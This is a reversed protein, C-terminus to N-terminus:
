ALNEKLRRLYNEVHRLHVDTERCWILQTTTMNPEAELSDEYPIGDSVNRLDHCVKDLLEVTYLDGMIGNISMETTLQKLQHIDRYNDWSLKLLLNYFDVNCVNLYMPVDSSRKCEHYVYSAITYKRESPFDLDPSTLLKVLTYPLTVQYPAPLQDPCSRCNEKIQQLIETSLLQDGIDLQQNRHAFDDLLEKITIFFDYDTEIRLTLKGIYAKMISSLAGKLRERSELKQLTEQNFKLSLFPQSSKDSNGEFNSILSVPYKRIDDRTLKASKNVKSGSTSKFFDLLKQDEPTFGKDKNEFVIQLGRGDDGDPDRSPSHRASKLIDRSHQKRAEEKRMINEFVQDFLSREPM